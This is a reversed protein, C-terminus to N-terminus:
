VGSFGTLQFKFDVHVIAANIPRQYVKELLAM